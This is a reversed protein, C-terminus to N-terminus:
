QSAGSESRSLLTESMHVPNSPHALQHTCKMEPLPPSAQPSPALSQPPALSRPCRPVEIYGQQSWQGMWQIACKTYLAPNSQCQVEFQPNTPDM